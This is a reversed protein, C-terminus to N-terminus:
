YAYLYYGFGDHFPFLLLSGQYTLGGVIGGEAYLILFLDGPNPQYGGLRASSSTSSVPPPRPTTASSSSTTRM